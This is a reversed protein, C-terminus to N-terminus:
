EWEPEQLHWQTSSGLETQGARLGLRYFAFSHQMRAWGQGGVAGARTSLMQVQPRALTDTNKTNTLKM